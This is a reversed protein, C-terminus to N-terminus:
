VELIFQELALPLEKRGSHTDRWLELLKGSLNILKGRSFKNNASKSKGYVFPHMGAEGANKAKGAVLINKVQWSLKWFLEEPDFGQSIARHYGVWLGRRDHTLLADSFKYIRSQLENEIRKKDKKEKDSFNYENLEAGLEKLRGVLEEELEYELLVFNEDFLSNHAAIEELNADEPVATASTLAQRYAVLVKDRNNGYFIRLV